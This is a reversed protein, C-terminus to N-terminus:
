RDGLRLASMVLPDISARAASVQDMGRAQAFGRKIDRLGEAHRRRLHALADDVRSAVRERPVAETLLGWRLAEEARLERGTSVAEFARKYPVAFALWGIVITPALGGFIEPFSITADESAVAVDAAAVLGAGFGAAAGRVEAVSVLPSNRLSENARVIRAAEERIEDVSRGERERGLCFNPGEHRLRVFRLDRDREGDEIAEILQEIMAGTFLNDRGRDATVVLVDADREISLGTPV